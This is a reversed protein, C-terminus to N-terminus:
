GEQLAKEAMKVAGQKSKATGFWGGRACYIADIVNSMKQLEIDRLTTWEAPLTARNSNFDDLNDRGSQVCWSGGNRHPYVVLKIEPNNVVGEEWDIYKDLILIKPNNQKIIAEKTLREGEITAANVKLQRILVQKALKLAKDFQGDLENQNELWTPNLDLIVEEITHGNILKHNYLNFGNDRADIPIVLKQEIRLAVEKSDCIKEGFHKWVLGFSAFPTSNEHLGAGDKQHHDFRNKKPDYQMGVDIVYDAREIISPDRTRIIRTSYQNKDAWISLTACAFVDDAHFSGNHTVIIIKKHFLKRFFTMM